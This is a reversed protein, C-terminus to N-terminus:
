IGYILSIMRYRDKDRQGVEGLVIGELDVWTVAFSLIEKKISQIINWSIHTFIDASSV